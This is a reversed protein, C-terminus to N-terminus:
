RVEMSLQGLLELTAERGDIANLIALEARVQDMVQNHLIAHDEKTVMVFYGGESGRKSSGIPLHFEIRLTRVCQKIQRDSLAEGASGDRMRAQIEKITIANASGRRFRVVSLVRKEEDGLHLGLPGGSKGCLLSLIDADIRQTRSEITPELDPFLSQPTM